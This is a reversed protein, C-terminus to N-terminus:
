SAAVAVTTIEYAPSLIKHRDPWHFKCFTPISDYHGSRTEDTTDCYATLHDVATTIICLLCSGTTLGTVSVSLLFSLSSVRAEDTM